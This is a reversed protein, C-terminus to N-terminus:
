FPGRKIAFHGTELNLDFDVLSSRVVLTELQGSAPFTVYGSGKDYANLKADLAPFGELNKPDIRYGNRFLAHFDGSTIRRMGSRYSIIKVEFVRSGKIEGLDDILFSAVSQGEEIGSKKGGLAITRKTMEKKYTRLSQPGKPKAPKREVPKPKPAPARKKKKDWKAKLTENVDESEREISGIREMPMKAEGMSSLFRVLDETEEIIVCRQAGGKKFKIWDGFANSAILGPFLLMFCLFVTARATRM